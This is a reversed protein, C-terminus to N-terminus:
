YECEKRLTPIGEKTPVGGVRPSVGERSPPLSLGEWLERAPAKRLSAGTIPGRPRPQRHLRRHHRQRQRHHRHRPLLQLRLERSSSRQPLVLRHLPLLPPQSSLSTLWHASSSRKTGVSKRKGSSMSAVKVWREAGERETVLAAIMARGTTTAAQSKRHCPINNSVRLARLRPPLPRCPLPRVASTGDPKQIRLL